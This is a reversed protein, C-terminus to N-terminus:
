ETQLRRLIPKPAANKEPPKRAGAARIIRHITYLLRRREKASGIQFTNQGKFIDKVRPLAKAILENVMKVQDRNLFTYHGQRMREQMRLLM